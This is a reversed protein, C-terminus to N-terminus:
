TGNEGLILVNADSPAVRAIAELLARMSRSAAIFGEGAQGRLLANEASLRQERRHARALALQNRLVSMLRPNDWPKEIFDGAGHRMAEVALNITGWATMVVVPMGEEVKKLERLLDLGETGS